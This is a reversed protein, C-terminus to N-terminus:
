NSSKKERLVIDGFGVLTIFLVAPWFVAMSGWTAQPYASPAPLGSWGLFLTDCLATFLLCGGIFTRIDDWEGRRLTQYAEALRLAVCAFPAHTFM